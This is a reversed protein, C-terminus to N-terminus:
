TDKGYVCFCELDEVLYSPRFLSRQKKYCHEYWDKCTENLGFKEAKFL